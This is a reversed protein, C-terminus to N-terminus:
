PTVGTVAGLILLGILMLAPLIMEKYDTGDYPKKM